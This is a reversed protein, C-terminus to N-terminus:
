AKDPEPRSSAERQRQQQEHRWEAETDDDEVCHRAAATKGVVPQGCGPCEHTLLERLTRAALVTDALARFPDATM